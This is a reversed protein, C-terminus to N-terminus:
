WWSMVRYKVEMNGEDGFPDTENQPIQQKDEQTDDMIEDENM